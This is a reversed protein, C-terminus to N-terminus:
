FIFMLALTIKNSIALLLGEQGEYKRGFKSPNLKPPSPSFNDIGVMKEEWKGELGFMSRQM